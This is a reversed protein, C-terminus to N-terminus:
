DGEMWAVESVGNIPEGYRWSPGSEDESLPMLFPSGCCGCGAIEVGTERTLKTLGELFDRRQAETLSM